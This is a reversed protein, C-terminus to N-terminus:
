GAKPFVPPTWGIYRAGWKTEFMEAPVIDIYGKRLIDNSAVQNNGLYVAIHGARHGTDWYLLAGPPPNRDGDHQMAKPVVSYHDIAYSVGSYSWGYVISTYALCAQYWENTSRSGAHDKAWQIAEAVSRPNNLTWTQKGDSFTGGGGGKGGGNGTDNGCNGNRTDIPADTSPSATSRNGTASGGRDLNIGADKALNRMATEHGAYLHRYREDPKQIDAAVEGMPKTEWGKMDVLGPNTGRGMFFSEAAFSPTMIQAVTGWDASPRQQFLGVSDRDGHDLNDVGSEQMAVMLAILTARGPLGLKEAVSDITKAYGIQRQRVTGSTQNTDGSVSSDGTGPGRDQCKGSAGARGGPFMLGIALLAIVFVIIAVVALKAQAGKKVIGTAQLAARTIDREDM